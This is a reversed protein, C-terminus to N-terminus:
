SRYSFRSFGMEINPDREMRKNINRKNLISISISIPKKLNVFVVDEKQFVAAVLSKTDLHGVRKNIEAAM